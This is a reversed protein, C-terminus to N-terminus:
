RRALYSAKRASRPLLLWRPAEKPAARPPADTLRDKCSGMLGCDSLLGQASVPSPRQRGQGGLRGGRARHGRGRRGKRSRGEEGAGGDKGGM